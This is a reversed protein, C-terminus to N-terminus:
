RGIRKRSRTLAILLVLVAVFLAIVTQLQCIGASVARAKMEVGPPLHLFTQRYWMMAYWLVTPPVLSAAVLAIRTLWSRCKAALVGLAVAIALPSAIMLLDLM